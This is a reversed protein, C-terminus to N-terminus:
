KELFRLATLIYDLAKSREEQAWIWHKIKNKLQALGEQFGRSGNRSEAHIDMNAHVHRKNNLLM